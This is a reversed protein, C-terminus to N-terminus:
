GRADNQPSCRDSEMQPRYRDPELYVIRAIPVAARMRAEAADIERAVEEFSLHADLEIKAGVLLEDPGLHMTRMHIIRCVRDGAVIANRIAELTQPQGSEGVLLSKMEMALVVAIVGLLAGIAISGLADWRPEGTLMAVGLGVLALLLGVLAGLDELLVVPLEPTKTRRIFSWWSSQGRLANAEKTATRFSWTELVIGVTLIAIGVLPAKIEHPHLLKEVGEYIAFVAGLVFIVQAVVFSWFYREMGYGFPHEATAAKKARASGLLLLAQNCTDAVSHVAEALMSAAGTLAFGIFKSVAIGLNAAFAALIARRSGDKM